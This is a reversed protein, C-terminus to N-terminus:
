TENALAQLDPSLNEGAFNLGSSDESSELIPTIVVRLKLCGAVRWSTRCGSCVTSSRFSSQCRQLRLAGTTSKVICIGIFALLVIYPTGNSAWESPLWSAYSTLESPLLSKNEASRESVQQSSLTDTFSSHGWVPTELPGFSGPKPSQHNPVAQFYPKVLNPTEAGEDGDVVAAEGVYAAAVDTHGSAELNGPAQSSKRSPSAGKKIHRVRRFASPLRGAQAVESAKPAAAETLPPEQTPILAQAAEALAAASAARVAAAAAAAVSASRQEAGIRSAALAVQDVDPVSAELAVITAWQPTQLLPFSELERARAAAAEPSLFSPLPVMCPEMNKGALPDFTGGGAGGITSGASVLLGPVSSQPGDMTPKQAVTGQGVNPGLSSFPLDICAAIPHSVPDKSVSMEADGGHVLQSTLSVFQHPLPM